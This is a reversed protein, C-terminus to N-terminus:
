IVKELDSGDIGHKKFVNIKSFYKVLYEIDTKNREEREKKLTKVITRDQESLGILSKQVKSTMADQVNGLKKFGFKEMEYKEKSVGFMAM